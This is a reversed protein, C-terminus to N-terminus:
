SSAVTPDNVPKLQDTIMLYNLRLWVLFVPFAMVAYPELYNIRIFRPFLDTPSFSSIVLTLVLLSITLFNKKRELVYWIGVGPFAIIYTPSESGTSALIIFLLLSGLLALQFNLQKHLKFRLFSIGMIMFAPVIYYLNSLHPNHTIKRVMGMVCVDLRLQTIDTNTGNKHILDTYWDTYCQLVYSPKCILMPLAFVVITWLCTWLIFNKKNKSFFFFALGVIGYLKIFAGLVIFLTGWIDKKHAIFTYSLIIMAVCIAHFQTNLMSTILTNTSIWIIIAKAYADLPLSWIAKFLCWANLIGWLVLSVGVPLYYFPAILLAFIPGYHYLDFYASYSGYLTKEHLLHEFSSYFIRFNNYSCKGQALDSIAYQKFSAIACILIWVALLFKPHRLLTVVQDKKTLYSM